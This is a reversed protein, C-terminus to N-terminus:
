GDLAEAVQFLFRERRRFEAETRPTFYDRWSSGHRRPAANVAPLADLPELDERSFGAEELFAALDSRLHEFRLFRVPALDGLAEGSDIRAGDLRALAGRPDRAFFRLFHVTAPGIDEALPQGQLVDERGFTWQLELYQEFDLDPFGPFREQVADACGPPHQRWFGHEYQSVCRDLPDRHVSVVPLHRHSAPIQHVAGHQSRRGTRRASSTRDIPLLLERFRGRVLLRRIWAGPGPAGDRYLERLVSRVFTSGTRPYNLCVFRDTVIM